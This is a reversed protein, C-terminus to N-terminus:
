QRDAHGGAVDRQHFEHQVAMARDNNAHHSEQHHFDKGNACANGDEKQNVPDQRVAFNGSTGNQRRSDEQSQQELSELVAVYEGQRSQIKGLDIPGEGERHAQHEPCKKGSKQQQRACVERRLTMNQSFLNALLTSLSGQDRGTVQRQSQPCPKGRQCCTTDILKGDDRRAYRSGRLCTHIRRLRKSHRSKTNKNNMALASDACCPAIGTEDTGAFKRWTVFWAAVIKTPLTMEM